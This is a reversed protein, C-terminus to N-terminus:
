EDHVNSCLVFVDRGRADLHPPDFWGRQQWAAVYVRVHLLEELLASVVGVPRLGDAADVVSLSM